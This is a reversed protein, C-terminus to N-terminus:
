NYNGQPDVVVGGLSHITFQSLNFKNVIKKNIDYGIANDFNAGDIEVAFTKPIFLISTLLLTLFMKLHNM